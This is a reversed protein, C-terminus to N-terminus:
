AASRQRFRSSALLSASAVTGILSLLTAACAAMFVWEELSWPCGFGYDRCSYFKSRDTIDDGEGRSDKGDKGASHIVYGDANASQRYLYEHGWPDGPLKDLLKPEAILAKLGDDDRPLQSGRAKLRNMSERLVALDTHASDIKLCTVPPVSIVAIAASVVFSAAFATPSCRM